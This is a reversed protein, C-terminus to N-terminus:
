SDAHREVNVECDSILNKKDHLGELGPSTIFNVLVSRFYETTVVRSLDAFQTLLRRPVIIDNGM